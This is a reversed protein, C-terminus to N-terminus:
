MGAIDDIAGVVGTAATAILPVVISPNNLVNFVATTVFVSGWVMIGGMTPTGSKVQHSDPGEERIQKGFGIRRLLRILPGGACLAVFFAVMAIALPYQM